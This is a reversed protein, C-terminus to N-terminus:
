SFISPLFIKDHERMQPLPKTVASLITERDNLKQPGTWWWPFIELGLDMLRDYWVQAWMECTKQAGQETHVDEFCLFYSFYKIEYM